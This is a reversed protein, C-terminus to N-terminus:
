QLLVVDGLTAAPLLAYEGKQSLIGILPHEAIDIRRHTLFILVILDQAEDLVPLLAGPV